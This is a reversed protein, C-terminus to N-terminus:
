VVSARVKESSRYRPRVVKMPFRVKPSSYQSMMWISSSVRLSGAMERRAPYMSM